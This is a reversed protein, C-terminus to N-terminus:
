GSGRLSRVWEWSRLSWECTSSKVSANEARRERQLELDRYRGVSQVNGFAPSESEEVEFHRFMM